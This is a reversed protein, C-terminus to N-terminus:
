APLTVWSQGLDLVVPGPVRASSYADDTTSVAFALHHGAPVVHSVPEMATDFVAGSTGRLPLVQGGLVSITGLPDIDVLKVFLEADPPAVALTLHVHPIGEVAIPQGEQHPAIFMASSAPAEVPPLPVMPNFNPVERYTTPAITNALVLMEPYPVPSLTGSAAQGYGPEAPLGVLSPYLVPGQLRPFDPLTAWSADADHYLQVPGPPSPGAGRVYADLWEVVRQNVFARDPTPYGHGGGHMLLGAAVGRARLADYTALAETPPFLSDRWGQVLLTPPMQATLPLWHRISRAELEQAVDPPLTNAALSEALWVTLQPDVGGTNPAVLSGDVSGVYSSVEGAGYLLAVWGLKLVGNPALSRGLDNWTIEPVIADIRPDLAAALLQVGGAYSGGSMGVRPDDPGDLLIPVDPRTAMWSLLAGVDRVEYDPSDLEVQGGSEGFGRSDWTLVAYGHDLFQGIIGNPSTERHLSWGHTRLILPFPGPGDPVFLTAALAYGDFTPIWVDTVTAARPTGGAGASPLVSALPAAVLLALLLVPARPM